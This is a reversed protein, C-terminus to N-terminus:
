EFAASPGLPTQGMRTQDALRKDIAARRGDDERGRAEADLVNQNKARSATRKALENYRGLDFSYTYPVGFDRMKAALKYSGSKDDVVKISRLAGDSMTAVAVDGNATLFEVNKVEGLRAKKCLDDFEIPSAKDPVEKREVDIRAIPNIEVSGLAPLSPLSPMGPTPLANPNGVRSTPADAPPSSPADAPVAPLSLSPLSLKPLAFAPGDVKPAADAKPADDKNLSNWLGGAGAVSPLNAPSPLSFPLAAPADVPATDEAAAAQAAKLESRERAAAARDSAAAARDPEVPAPEDRAAPAPEERAVPAPEDKSPSLVPFSPLSPKTGPAFFPGLPPLGLGGGAAPAAAPAAPAAPFSPLSPLSLSPLSFGGSATAAAPPEPAVSFELAFAPASAAAAAAAAAAFGGGIHRRVARQVLRSNM